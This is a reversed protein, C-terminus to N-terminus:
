LALPPMVNHLWPVLDSMVDQSIEHAMNYERYQPSYRQATLFDRSERAAEVGIVTDQTGHAVFIPQDRHEPLNDALIDPSPVRGSLIILGAFMEPRRLGYRYTMMGGQSFGGMVMGGETIGHREMAEDFFGALLEEARTAADEGGPQGGSPTWAYGTMGYEFQMRIPANPFLYLYGGQDIGPALGVLDRMSAGFGHLLIVAPYEQSEDYGDPEVLIYALSNGEIERAQL